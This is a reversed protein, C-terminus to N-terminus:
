AVSKSIIEYILTGALIITIFNQKLWEVVNLNRENKLAKVDNELGGVKNITTNLSATMHEMAIRNDQITEDIKELTDVNRQLLKDLNNYQEKMVPLAKEVAQLRMDIAGVDSQIKEIEHQMIENEMFERVYIIKDKVIPFEKKHLM